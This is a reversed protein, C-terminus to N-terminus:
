EGKDALSLSRSTAYDALLRAGYGTAGAESHVVDQKYQVTGAMDIHVWRMSAAVFRRIFLAATIAGALGSTGVNHLDAYHSRLDSEYEDVLPMPWLREGNEEGIGVLAETMGSDGWIGALGLGLAQGVNGTLTAIDIAESAGLKAAHLLADALVLRGEGDTNAVQVTLGNPFRVISSPLMAATGPLNDAIALLATVNVKARQRVLIAMAGIVAAAGGMDMRADSIDRGTKINMGGMDFTIGKGALALMPLSADAEYRIEILAPRYKSGSGVAILGNMQREELERGRYVHVQVPMNEFYAVTREVFAEPNLVEPPENVLDRALRVGEARARALSITNELEIETLEPWDAPMLNLTVDRSGNDYVAKYKDFRYLGYMWGELWAQLWVAVGEKDMVDVLDLTRVLTANSNGESLLQRAAAGGARRVRESTADKREGLGVALAEPEGAVRGRFWTTKGPARNTDSLPFPFSGDKYVPHIFVEAELSSNITIPM